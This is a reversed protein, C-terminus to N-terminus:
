QKAEEEKLEEFMKYLYYFDDFIVSTDSKYDIHYLIKEFWAFMLKRAEDEGMKKKYTKIFTPEREDDVFKYKRWIIELVKNDRYYYVELSTKKSIFAFHNDEKIISIDAGDKAKSVLSQVARVIIQWEIPFDKLTIKEEKQKTESM